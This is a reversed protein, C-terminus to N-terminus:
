WFPDAGFKKAGSLLLNGTTAAWRDIRLPYALSYTLVLSTYAAALFLIGRADGRLSLELMERAYDILNM